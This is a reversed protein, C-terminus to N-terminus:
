WAWVRAAAPLRQWVHLVGHLAGRELPLLHLRPRRQQPARRGREKLLLVQVDALRAPGHRHPPQMNIAGRMAIVCSALPLSMGIGISHTQRTAFM